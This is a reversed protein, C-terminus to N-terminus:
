QVPAGATAADYPLFWAHLPNEVRVGREILENFVFNRFADRSTEDDITELIEQRRRIAADFFARADDGYGLIRLLQAASWLYVQPHVYYTQFAPLETRIREAHARAEEERGAALYALGLLLPYHVRLTRLADDQPASTEFAREIIATGGALDDKGILVEGLLSSISPHSYGLEEGLRLSERVRREATDLDGAWVATNALNGHMSTILDNAGCAAAAELGEEGYRQAAPFNASRNEVMVQWGRVRALDRLRGAAITIQACIKFHAQAQGIHM